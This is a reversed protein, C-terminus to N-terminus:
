KDAFFDEAIKLNDKDNTERKLIRDSIDFALDTVESQLSNLMASHEAKMDARAKELIKDATATANEIIKDANQKATQEAKSIIEAGASKNDEILANYKAASEEAQKKILEVEAKEAAIREKRANLVKQVPKYVLAKVIVFLVIINIINIILDKAVEPLSVGNM